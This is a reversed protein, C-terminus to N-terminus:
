LLSPVSFYFGQFVDCGMSKLTLFQSETEIGEAVVTMGMNHCLDVTSQAILQKKRESEINKVFSRDIKVIDFPLEALYMLSSYGTGFDDLSLSFGLKKLESFITRFNEFDCVLIQETIEFVFLSPEIGLQYIKKRLYPVFAPSFLQQPSINISILTSEGYKKQIREFDRFVTDLVFEGLLSIKGAMELFNVFEQTPVPIGDPNSFRALAELSVVKQNQDVKEQYHVSTKHINELIYSKEEKRLESIM